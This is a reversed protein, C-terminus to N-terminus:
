GTKTLDYHSKIINIDNFYYTMPTRDGHRIFIILNTLKM